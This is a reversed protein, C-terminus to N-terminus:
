YVLKWIIALAVAIEKAKQHDDILRDYHHDLAYSAAAAALSGVQRMGGSWANKSHTLSQEDLAEDGVLVSGVPAGLDKALVSLFLILFIETNFLLRLNQLHSCEVFSCWRFPARFCTPTM